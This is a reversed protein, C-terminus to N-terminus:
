RGEATSDLFRYVADRVNGNPDRKMLAAATAAEGRDMGPHAFVRRVVFTRIAGDRDNRMRAMRSLEAAAYPVTANLLRACRGVPFRQGCIMDVLERRRDSSGVAYAILCDLAAISVDLRRDGTLDALQEFDFETIECLTRLLPERPSEPVVGDGVPYPDEHEVWHEMARRLLPVVWTDSGKAVGQCWRATSVATKAGLDFLGRELVGIHDPVLEMKWKLLLDILYHMGSVTRGELTRLVLDQGRHDSHAMALAGGWLLADGKGSYLIRECVAIRQVEDLRADLLLAALRCVWSSPHHVLKELHDNDICLNAAGDWNPNPADVEPFIGFLSAADGEAMVSDITDVACQAETALRETSLGFAEAATRFLVHLESLKAGGLQFTCIDNFTSEMMGSMRLFASLSKLGTEPPPGSAETLFAASVVDSLVFAVRRPTKALAELDISALATPVSPRDLQFIQLIADRRGLEKLTADIRSLFRMSPNHRDSVATILRDQNHVDKGPLLLRLAGILFEEFVGRDHYQGFAFDRLVFFDDDGSRTLFHHFADELADLDLRNSFRRCLIAWGVLRSWEASAELLTFAMEEAEPLRSLDNRTLCLGTRYAKQRDASRVLDFLGELFSKRHQRSLSTEPRGLIRLLPELIDLNPESGDFERTLMEALTTAMPTQTAFDLIEDSGPNTLERRILCRARDPAMEVLHRAAAFEGCTKHVFAILEHGGHQLREVLGVAEWYEISRQVDSLAQLYTVDTDTQLNQACRKEIDELGLLPSVVVQWALENLVSHRIAKTPYKPTERRPSPLDDIMRFIRAYLESKTQCPHQWKLFLSAGLALLLPTRALTLASDGVTLYSQVRDRLQDEGEGDNGLAARCLVELHKPVDEAALPAIAYHRWERLQSTSYGIPRTTVVIRYSPHSAAINRLGAAIISQYDGCEDLGDCLIILEPISASNLQEPSIRSGDLGLKIIGAEVTCGEREIRKALDRLRVCLSVFSDKAFERALVGLLLSKGSGPGGIVVCLRRFTGITRADIKEDRTGSQEDTIAHYAALAEEVSFDAKFHGEQVLAKLPLWARDTPLPAPVGLIEFHETRRNTLELLSASIAAPSDNPRGSLDIGSSRLVSILSPITRRGRTAMGSLADRYLANWAPGIQHLKVCVHGLESRAAAVADAEDILASVTKIRVRSCVKAVDYGKEALFHALRAQQKSPRDNRQDGLRRLAM